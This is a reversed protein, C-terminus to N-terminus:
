ALSSKGILAQKALIIDANTFTSDDNIDCAIFRCTSSGIELLGLNARNMYFIDSTTLIGDGDIDGKVAFVYEDIKIREPGDLSDNHSYVNIKTNTGILDSSSLTEGNVDVFDYRYSADGFVECFEEVTMGDVANIGHIIGSEADLELNSEEIFNLSNHPYNKGEDSQEGNEAALAYTSFKDTYFIIYTGDESVEAEIKEREGNHERYVYYADRGRYDEPIDIRFALEENLETVKSPKEKGVYCTLEVDVCEIIEASDDTALTSFENWSSENTYTGVNLGFLSSNAGDQGKAIAIQQETTFNSIMEDNLAVISDNDVTVYSDSTHSYDINDEPWIAIIKGKYSILGDGFVLIYDIQEGTKPEKAFAILSKNGHVPMPGDGMFYDVPSAIFGRITLYEENPISVIETSNDNYTVTFSLGTADVDGWQRTSFTDRNPTTNIVISKVPSTEPKFDYLKYENNLYKLYVGTYGNDELHYSLEAYYGNILWGAPYNADYLGDWVSLNAKDYTFEYDPTGDDYKITISLGTLDYPYEIGDWNISLLDGEYYTRNPLSNVVVESVNPETKIPINDIMFTDWAFLRVGLSIYDEPEEDFYGALNASFKFDGYDTSVIDNHGHAIVQKENGDIGVYTIVFDTGETSWWCCAHEIDERLFEDFWTQHYLYAPRITGEVPVISITPNDIVECNLNVTKGIFSVFGNEYDFEPYYTTGDYDYYLNNFVDVKLETGDKFYITAPINGANYAGYENSKIVYFDDIDINAVPSEEIYISFDDVIGLSGYEATAVISDGAKLSDLIDNNVNFMMQGQFDKYYLTDYGSKKVSSGDDYYVTYDPNIIYTKKEEDHWNGDPGVYSVMYSATKYNEILHVDDVEIHTIEKDDPIYYSFSFSKSFVYYEGDREVMSSGSGSFGMGDISVFDNSGFSFGNKSRLSINYTYVEGAEFVKLDNEFNGNVLGYNWGRSNSWYNSVVDYDDTSPIDILQPATNAGTKVSEGDLDLICNMDPDVWQQEDSFYLWVDAFQQNDDISVNVISEQYLPDINCNSISYSDFIRSYHIPIVGVNNDVIVKLVNGSQLWNIYEEGDDPSIYCLGAGDWTVTLMKQGESPVFNMFPDDFAIELYAHQGEGISVNIINQEGVLEVDCEVSSTSSILGNYSIPIVDVDDDVVIKLQNYLIDYNNYQEDLYTPMECFGNGSWTVTLMKQGEQPILTAFNYEEFTWYLELTIPTNDTPAFPVECLGDEKEIIEHFRGNISCGVPPTEYGMVSLVSGENIPVGTSNGNWLREEGDLGYNLYVESMPDNSNVLTFSTMNRSYKGHFHLCIRGESDLQIYKSTAYWNEIGVMNLQNLGSFAYGENAIVDVYFSYIHDSNDPIESTVELGTTEDIWACSISYRDETMPVFQTPLTSSSFSNTLDITIADSIVPAFIACVDVDRGQPEIELYQRGDGDDQVWYGSTNNTVEYKYIAYGEDPAYTVKARNNQPIRYGNETAEASNYEWTELDIAQVSYIAGNSSHSVNLNFGDDQLSEEANAFVTLASMPMFAFAMVIALVFSLCRKM